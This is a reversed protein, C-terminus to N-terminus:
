HSMYAQPPQLRIVFNEFELWKKEFYTTFKGSSNLEKLEKMVRTIRDESFRLGYLFKPVYALAVNSYWFELMNYWDVVDKSEINKLLEYNNWKKLVSLPIDISENKALCLDEFIKVSASDFNLDLHIKKNWWIDVFSHYVFGLILDNSTSVSFITKIEPLLSDISKTVQGLELNLHTKDRSLVGIYRIDPLLSGMMFDDWLVEPLLSKKLQQAYYVHALEAAM